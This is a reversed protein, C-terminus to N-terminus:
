KLCLSYIRWGKPYSFPLIPPLHFIFIREEKYFFIVTLPWKEMFWVTTSLLLPFHKNDEVKVDCSRAVAAHVSTLLPGQVHLQLYSPGCICWCGRLQFRSVLGQLSLCRQTNWPTSSWLVVKGKTLLLSMYLDVMLCHRWFRRQCAIGDCRHSASCIPISCWSAARRM